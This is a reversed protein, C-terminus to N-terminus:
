RIPQTAPPRWWSATACAFTTVLRAVEVGFAGGLFRRERESGQDFVVIPAAGDCRYEVVGTRPICEGDPGQFVIVRAAGKTCVPSGTM